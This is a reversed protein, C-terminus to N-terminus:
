PKRRSAWGSLTAHPDCDREYQTADTFGAAYWKAQTGIFTDAWENANHESDFMGVVEPGCVIAWLNTKVSPRKASPKKKTTAM